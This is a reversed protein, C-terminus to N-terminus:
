PSEPSTNNSPVLRRANAYRDNNHMLISWYGISRHWFIIFGDSKRTSQVFVNHAPQVRIHCRTRSTPTYSGADHCPRASIRWVSPVGVFRGPNNLRINKNTFIDILKSCKRHMRLLLTSPNNECPEDMRSENTKIPLFDCHKLATSIM